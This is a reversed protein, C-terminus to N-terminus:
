EFVFGKEAFLNLCTDVVRSDYLIGKNRSIEKLAKNIGLAPRYPRRSSMAEVVDAVALIRAELLIEKGSLGQPYGSGDIREHHQLVIQAIPWPFQEMSFLNYGVKPHNKVISFEAKTLRTRKSLIDTPVYVRGIDHIVSALRIGEVKEEPLGMERAIACALNAVKRQHHTMYPDRIESVLAMAYITGEMARRLRQSNQRLEEEVQKGRAESAELEAVRRRLEKTENILCKKTKNEDRQTSIM